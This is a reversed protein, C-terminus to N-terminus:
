SQDRGVTTSIYQNKESPFTVMHIEFSFSTLFGIQRRWKAFNNEYIMEM